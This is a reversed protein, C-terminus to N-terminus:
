QRYTVWATNMRVVQDATFQNYCPDDSYDMYNFIPDLGPDKVCTDIGVPCGRAPYRESPTDDIYDGNTSCGNQFTHYLLLWHGAEHTATFGLNFREYTGGPMSRFDIVIGDMEPQSKYSSPFTAWGLYIGATATYINLTEAGGRRLATKCRREAQTQPGMNFWETNLTRDVGVLDFSFGTDAGGREGAYTENMVTIQDHITKNSIEGNDYGSGQTIVHVFVPIVIRGANRGHNAQLDQEIQNEESLTPTRTGCRDKAAYSPSACVAAALFLQLVTRSQM